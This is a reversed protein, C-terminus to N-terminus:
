GIEEVVEGAQNRIQSTVIEVSLGPAGPVRYVGASPRLIACLEGRVSEPLRVELHSETIQKLAYREAPEFFVAAAPGDVALGRGHPLRGALALAIRGAASAGFTLTTRAPRAPDRSWRVDQVYISGTSSGDRREGEEIAAAVGPDDTLSSRALDTVLLPLRPEMAALLRGADWRQAADYEERTLGVVQLFRLRGHPTDITGLQPDEAFAVARIATDRADLSIPGNLDLHHGPGFRNGSSFVYRALNQLFNLPWTPPAEDGEGRTLRLTFEFGWGSEEALDSEKGYLESMGYSVFHWHGAAPYVSIGDLPDPGGLSWKLVTGYHVPTVGPYVRSLAGDIADWGPAADTDPVSCSLVRRHTSGPGSSHRNHVVSAGAPRYRPLPAVRAVSGTGLRSATRSAAGRQGRRLGLRRQGSPYVRVQLEMPYAGAPRDAQLQQFPCQLQLLVLRM